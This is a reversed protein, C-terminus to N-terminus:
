YTSYNVRPVSCMATGLNFSTVSTGPTVAVGSMSQASMTPLKALCPVSVSFILVTEQAQSAFLLSPM